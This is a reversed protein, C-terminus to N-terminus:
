TATYINLGLRRNEIIINRENIRRCAYALDKLLPYEPLLQFSLNLYEEEIKIKTKLNYIQECMNSFKKKEYGPPFFNVRIYQDLARLYLGTKQELELGQLSFGSYDAASYTFYEIKRSFDQFGEELNPWRSLYLNFLEEPAIEEATLNSLIVLSIKASLSDKLACGKLIVRKNVTQQMLELEINALYVEKKLSEQYFQKFEGISKISRFSSFQWPWLAFIASRPQKQEVTIVKIEELNDAYLTLKSINEPNNNMALLFNIFEESPSNTGPATFLILPENEKLRKKIYSISEDINASFIFPIYPTSWITRFQGDIYFSKGGSLDVKICRVEKFIADLLEPGLEPGPGMTMVDKLDILYPNDTISKVVNIYSQGLLCDMAKLLFAGTSEFESEKIQAPTWTDLHGLAQEQAQTIIKRKLKPRRGVPKSLGANKIVANISSKSVQIQFKDLIIGSIMRCGFQPKDAQIKM